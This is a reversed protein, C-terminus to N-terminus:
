RKAPQHAWVGSLAFFPVKLHRSSHPRGEAFCTLQDAVPKLSAPTKTALTIAQGAAEVAKAQAILTGPAVANSMTVEPDNM